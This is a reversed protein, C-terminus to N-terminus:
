NTTIREVGLCQSLVDWGKDPGCDSGVVWLDFGAAKAIILYSQFGWRLQTAKVFLHSPLTPLKIIVLQRRRLSPHRARSRHQSSKSPLSTTCKSLVLWWLSGYPNTISLSTSHACLSSQLNPIHQVDVSEESKGLSHVLNICPSASLTDLLM